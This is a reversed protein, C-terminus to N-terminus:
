QVAIQVTNSTQGNVTLVVDVVGAGHLSMPLAVNVQDLGPYSGQRGAYLVPATVGGITITVDALSTRGRIGAGSATNLSTFPAGDIVDRPNVLRNIDRLVPPPRRM